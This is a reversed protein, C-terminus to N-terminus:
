ASGTVLFQPLAMMFVGDAISKDVEAMIASLRKRDLQGGAEAYSAMNRLVPLMRGQTDVSALIMVSVNSFGVKKMEGYLRRGALPTRFALGAAGILERLPESGLPEVVVMGWDSDIIHAIGGPKLVRRFETLTATVDPVYEMVNKCVLRDATADPLPIRDDTAHHVTASAAFGADALAQRAMRVFDANLDVGHVRGSPGARRALELALGGPGCGYDVMVQGPGLEARAILPEMEARWTFLQQYTDLREPAVEVWHDRFYTDQKMEIGHGKPRALTEPLRDAAFANEQPSTRGSQRSREATSTVRRDAIPSGVPCSTDRGLRGYEIKTM